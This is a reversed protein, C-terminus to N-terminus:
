TSQQNENEYENEERELINGISRLSIIISGRQMDEIDLDENSSIGTARCYTVQYSPLRFCKLNNIIEAVRSIEDDVRQAKTFRYNLIYTILYDKESTVYKSTLSQQQVTLWWVEPEVQKTSPLRYLFFNEGEVFSLLESLFHFLEQSITEM